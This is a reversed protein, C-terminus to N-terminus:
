GVGAGERAPATAQLLLGGFPWQDSDHPPTPIWRTIGSNGTSRTAGNRRMPMWISARCPGSPSRGRRRPRYRWYLRFGSRHWRVPTEPKFIVASGLLAPFLRYLWVFILRDATRLRLRAPASRKLVLLQQRLFAVEAERAVPSRFLGVLWGGLLNLLDIMDACPLGDGRRRWCPHSKRYGCGHQQRARM